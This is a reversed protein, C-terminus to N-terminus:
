HIPYIWALYSIIAGIIAAMTAAIATIAAIWAARNASRTARMQSAMFAENRTREEEDLQALWKVADSYLPQVLGGTSLLIRVKAMGMRELQLQTTEQEAMEPVSGKGNTGILLVDAHEADAALLNTPRSILGIIARTQQSKQKM